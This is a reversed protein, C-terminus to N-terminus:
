KWSFTTRGSGHVHEVIAVEAGVSPNASKEAIVHAHRGDALKVDVALGNQIAQPVGGQLPSVREVVGSVNRKEVHADLDTFWAAAALVALFGVAMAGRAIWQKRVEREFKLRVEERM